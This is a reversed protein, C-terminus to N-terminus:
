KVAGKLNFIAGNVCTVEWVMNPNNYYISASKLGGNAECVQVAKAYHEPYVVQSCASLLVAGLIIFTTHKM